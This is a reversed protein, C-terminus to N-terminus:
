AEFNQGRRWSVHLAPMQTYMPVVVALIFHKAKTQIFMYSPGGVGLMGIYIAVKKWTEGVSFDFQSEFVSPDQLQAHEGHENISQM